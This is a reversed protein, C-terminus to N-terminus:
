AKARPWRVIKLLGCLGQDDRPPRPYHEGDDGQVRARWRRALECMKAILVDSPHKASVLGQDWHLAETGDEQDPRTTMLASSFADAPWGDPIPQMVLDPDAAVASEWEQRSIEPGEEDWWDDRRTIHLEYGM